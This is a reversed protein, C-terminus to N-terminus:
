SNEEENEEEQMQDSDQLANDEDTGAKLHLLGDKWEWVEPVKTFEGIVPILTKEIDEAGYDKKWESLNSNVVKCIHHFYYRQYKVQYTGLIAKENPASRTLKHNLIAKLQQAFSIMNVSLEDDIGNFVNLFYKTHGSSCMGDIEVIEQLLRKLLEDKAPSAYIRLLIYTLADLITCGYVSTPDIQARELLTRLIKKEEENNAVPLKEELFTVKEPITKPVHEQKQAWEVIKTLVKELAKEIEEDHANQQDNYVNKNEEKGDGYSMQDRFKLVDPNRGFKRLMLDLLNSRQKYDPSKTAWDLFHQTIEKEPIYGIMQEDNFMQLLFYAAPFRSRFFHEAIARLAYIDAYQLYMSKPVINELKSIVPILYTAYKASDKKTHKYFVYLQRFLWYGLGCLVDSPTEPNELTAHVENLVQAFTRQHIEKMDEFLQAYPSEKASAIRKAENFIRFYSPDVTEYQVTQVDVAKSTESELTNYAEDLLAKKEEPSLDAFKIPM